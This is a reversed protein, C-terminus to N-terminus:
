SDLRPWLGWYKVSLVKGLREECLMRKMPLTEQAYMTQYGIAAFKKTEAEVAQIAHAEQITAAMPKEVYVNAGSRMVAISMTAHLPIGTPIFCLDFGSDFKTLMQRYDTFLECGLERLRACKEPEEEQNIVTAGLAQMREKEVEKLLYNYHTNGFGSIGIICARIM